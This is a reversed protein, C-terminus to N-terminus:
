GIGCYPECNSPHERGEIEALRHVVISLRVVRVRLELSGDGPLYFRPCRDAYGCSISQARQCTASCVAVRLRERADDLRPRFLALFQDSFRILMRIVGSMDHCPLSSSRYTMIHVTNKSPHTSSTTLDTRNSPSWLIVYAHLWVDGFRKSYGAEAARTKFVRHSPLPM